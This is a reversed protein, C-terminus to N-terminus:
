SNFWSNCFVRALHLGFIVCFVVCTVDLGGSRWSSGHLSLKTKQLMLAIMAMDAGVFRWQVLVAIWLSSLSPDVV